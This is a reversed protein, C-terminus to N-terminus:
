GTMGGTSSGGSQVGPHVHSNVSGNPVTVDNTASVNPVTLKTQMSVNGNTQTVPGVLDIQQAQLTLTGPSLMTVNSGNFWIYQTLAALSFISAIYILDSINHRRASGPGNM